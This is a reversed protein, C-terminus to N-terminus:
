NVLFITFILLQIIIIVYSDFNQAIVRYITLSKDSSLPKNLFYINISFLIFIWVGVPIIEKM